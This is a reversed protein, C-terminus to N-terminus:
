EDADAHRARRARRGDRVRAGDRRCHRARVRDGDRHEHAAGPLVAHAQSQEAGACHDRGGRWGSGHEPAQAPIVHGLGEPGHTERADRPERVLPAAAGAIIPAEIGAIAAILRANRTGRDVDTNGHVTTIAVLELQPLKSALALAVADDIGPDTDICFPLRCSGHLHVPPAEERWEHRGVEKAGTLKREHHSEQERQLEARDRDILTEGGVRMQADAVGDDNRRRRARAAVGHDDGRDHAAAGVRALDRAAFIARVQMEVLQLMEDAVAIADIAEGDRRM